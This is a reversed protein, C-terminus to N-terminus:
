KAREIELERKFKLEEEEMERKFKLREEEMKRWSQESERQFKVRDEEMRRQWKASEKEMNQRMRANAEADILRAKAEAEAKIGQAKAAEQTDGFQVQTLVLLVTLVVTSFLICIVGPSATQVVLKGLNNVEGKLSLAGEIGMVFLSFGVSLLAFSFAVALIRINQEGVHQLETARFLPTFIYTLSQDTTSKEATTTPAPPPARDQLSPGVPRTFMITWALIMNIVAIAIGTVVLARSLAQRGNAESSLTSPAEPSM